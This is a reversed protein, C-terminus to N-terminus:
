TLPFERKDPQNGLSKLIKPLNGGLISFALM